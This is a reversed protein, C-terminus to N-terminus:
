HIGRLLPNSVTNRGRLLSGERQTHTCFGPTSKAFGKVAEERGKLEAYYRDQTQLSHSMMTAVAAREREEGGKTVATAAAHRSATATPVNVGYREGLKVVHRLLHDLVKGEQNPFLLVSEPRLLSIYNDLFQSIHKSLTLKARGTTGTKHHMVMFTKYERRGVTTTKAAEYESLTANVVAGPRQHNTLLLCGAVVTRIESSSVAEKRRM